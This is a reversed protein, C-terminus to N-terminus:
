APWRGLHPSLTVAPIVVGAAAAPSGPKLKYDAGSLGVGGLNVFLPNAKVSHSDQSKGAVYAALTAYLTGGYSIFDTAEPGILNYDSVWAGGAAVGTFLMSPGSGAANWAINDKMVGDITTDLALQRIPVVTVNVITNSYWRHNTRKSTGNSKTRLGIQCDIMVNHDLQCNDVVYGPTADSTVLAGADTTKYLVNRSATMGDGLVVCGYGGGEIYNDTILHNNGFLIMCGKVSGVNGIQTIYNGRFVSSINVGLGSDIQVGDSFTGDAPGIYTGLMTPRVSTIAYFGESGIDRFVSNMVLGDDSAAIFAAVGNEGTGNGALSGITTRQAMVRYCRARKSNSFVFARGNTHEAAVDRIKVDNRGTCVIANLRTGRIVDTNNPAGSDSRVYLVNGVWYWQGNLLSDTNTGLSSMQGRLDVLQVQPTSAAQYTNVHSGAVLAGVEFDTIHLGTTDSANAASAGGLRIGSVGASAWTTDTATDFLVTDWYGRITSGQVEIRLVHTEAALLASTSGTQAGINTATGDADFRALRLVGAVGVHADYCRETIGSLDIRATVRAVDNALVSKVDITAQVYYDATTFGPQAYYHVTTITDARRVTGAGALKASNATFNPHCAWSTGITPVHAELNTGSSGVFSDLVTRQDVGGNYVSWGTVYEGGDIIPANTCYGIADTVRDAGYAGISINSSPLTLTEKWRDGRKLLVKAPNSASCTFSTGSVKALTLWPKEASRGHNSDSGTNSVFYANGPFTTITVAAQRSDAILYKSATLLLEVGSAINGENSATSVDSTAKYYVPSVGYNRVTAPADVSADVFVTETARVTRFSAVPPPPTLDPFAVTAGLLADPSAIFWRGGPMVISSGSAISGDATAVTVADTLGYYLTGSGHNRVELPTDHDVWVPTTRIMLTQPLQM